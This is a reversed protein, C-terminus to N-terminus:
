CSIKYHASLRFDRGLRATYTKLPKQKGLFSGLISPFWIASVFVGADFSPKHYYKVNTLTTVDESLLDTYLSLPHAYWYVWLVTSIIYSANSSFSNVFSQWTGDL